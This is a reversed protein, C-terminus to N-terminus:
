SIRTYGSDIEDSLIDISEFFRQIEMDFSEINLSPRRPGVSDRVVLVPKGRHNTKLELTPFKSVSQSVVQLWTNNCQCNWAYMHKPQGQDSDILSMSIVGETPDRQQQQQQPQHPITSSVSTTSWSTKASNTNLSEGTASEGLVHYALRIV